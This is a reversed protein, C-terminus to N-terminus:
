ARGIYEAALRGLQRESRNFGPLDPTSVNINVTNGSPRYRKNQSRTEPLNISLMRPQSGLSQLLHGEVTGGEAFNLLNKLPDKGRKQKLLQYRQAEGTITSLVEEGRHLVALFPQKGSERREKAVADALGGGAFNPIATGGSAFGGLGGGFGGLGLFSFLSKMAMQTAIQGISKLISLAMGRFADGISRTGGMLDEFFGGFADTAVGEITQGLDKFQRDIDGLNLDRLTTAKDILQQATDPNDPYQQKIQAIQQRYRLEEQLRASRERLDNAAFPDGSRELNAAQKEAIQADLDSLQQERNLRESDTSNVIQRDRQAAQQKALDIRQAQETPDPIKNKIDLIDQELQKQSQLLELEQKKELNSQTQAIALRLNIEELEKGLTKTQFQYNVEKERLQAQQRALNIRREQETPNDAFDQKIKAIDSELQLQSQLLNVQKELELNNQGQAVSLEIGLRELESQVERMRAQVKVFEEADIKGQKLEGRLGQVQKLMAQYTQKDKQFGGILGSLFKASEQDVANNSGQLVQILPQVQGILGDLGKINDSLTREQQSLQNDFGKFQNEVGRLEQQLQGSQTQPAYQSRMDKAQNQLDTLGSQTNRIQDAMQRSITERTQQLNLIFDNIQQRVSQDGLNVQRQKIQTLLNTLGQARQTDFNSQNTQAQTRDNSVFQVSGSLFRQANRYHPKGPALQNQFASYPSTGFADKGYINANPNGGLVTAYGKLLGMGPKFGRDKFYGVVSKTIQEEFSQGQYVGYRKREPIGFQILGQYNNGAGGIKSPNFTGGTEFSIIAALEEPKLGITNAAQILARQKSSASNNPTAKGQYPIAGPQQTTGGRLAATFAAIADTAGGLNRIFNTLEGQLSYREGELGIRAGKQGFVQEVLQAAADFIGQIQSILGNVFTDSGPILARQLRSKINQYKLQSLLKDVENLAQKIQQTLNFFYDNVNKQLDILANQFGVAGQAAQEEASQLGKKIELQTKIADLVAQEQASRGEQILRDITASSELTLGQEQAQKRLEEIIGSFEPSALYKNADSLQQRMAQVKALAEGQNIGEIALGTVQSGQGSQIAATRAKSGSAEIKENLAVTQENLNRMAIALGSIAKELTSVLDDFASQTKDIDKLRLELNSRISAEAQQTIGKKAVLQDLADLQAKIQGKNSELNERFRATIKLQKDREKILKKEEELSQNFGTKDAPNLSFRNSRLTKLQRDLDQVVKLAKKAGSELGLVQDSQTLLDGVGAQFDLARKAGLTATPFINPNRTVWRGFDASAKRVPEFSLPTKMGLFNWTEDSTIDNLNKPLNPKIPTKAADAADLFAQKLSNVGITAERVNKTLDPFQDSAIKIVATWVEIAASILLFDQLMPVLAKILDALIAKFVSFSMMALDIALKSKLFAQSLYVISQIITTAGLAVLLKIFTPISGILTNLGSAFIELFPKSGAVWDAFGRRLRTISNELRNISSQTTETAGSIAANQAAYEAALKPLIDEALVQGDKIMTELQPIQVGLTKALTSEFNLEPISSFSSRIERVNLKQKELLSALTRVAEVQKDQSVGRKDLTESFSSYIQQTQVDGLTTNKAAAKLALYSEEASQLNLGLRDAEKGVFALSAAGQKSSGTIATFALNITELQKVAEVSSNALDLFGHALAEVGKQVGVGVLIAVFFDKVHGLVPFKNQIAEFFQDFGAKAHGVTESAKEDIQGLFNTFPTATKGIQRLGIQFGEVVEGALTMFVLSPSAIKLRKKAGDIAAQGLDEGSQAVENLKAEMGQTFGDVTDVAVNQILGKKARGKSQPEGKLVEGEVRTLHSAQAQISRTGTYDAPLNELLDAYIQKVSQIQKLLHEGLDSALQKDENEIAKRFQKVEENIDRSFQAAFEKKQPVTLNAYNPVLTKIQSQAQKKADAIIKDLYLIYKDRLSLATKQLEEAPKATTATPTKPLSGGAKLAKFAEFVKDKNLLEFAYADFEKKLADEFAKTGRENYTSASLEAAQHIKAITKDSIQGKVNEPTLLEKPNLSKQQAHRMEHVIARVDSQTLEDGGLRDAIGKSVSIKRKNTEAYADDGPVIGPQLQGFSKPSKGTVQAASKRVAEFNAQAKEWTNTLELYASPFSQALESGLANIQEILPQLEELGSDNVIKKAFALEEVLIKALNEKVKAPMNASRDALTKLESLRKTLSSSLAQGKFEPAIAGIAEPHALYDEMNHSKLSGLIGYSELDNKKGKRGLILSLGRQNVEDDKGVISQYNKAKYGVGLDPTGVGSGQVDKIGAKELIAIAEEVVSGGASHGILRIDADPNERRSAIVQAALKVADPNKGKIFANKLYKYYSDLTFLFMNEKASVVADTNPTEVPIINASNRGIANQLVRKVMPAARGGTGANGGVVFYNPKGPDINPDLGQSMKVAKDVSSDVQSRRRDRVAQKFVKRPNSVFEATGEGTGRFSLGTNTKLGKQFGKVFEGAIRIGLGAILGTGLIQLPNGLGGGKTEIKVKKIEEGIAKAMRTESDRSAGATPGQVVVSKASLTVAGATLNLSKIELRNPLKFDNGVRDLRSKFAEVLRGIMPTQVRIEDRIARSIFLQQDFRSEVSQKLRDLGTAVAAFGRNDM